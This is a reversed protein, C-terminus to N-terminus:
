EEGEKAGALVGGGLVHGLVPDEGDDDAEREECEAEANVEECGAFLDGGDGADQDADEGSHDGGEGDAKDDIEDDLTPDGLDLGEFDEGGGDFGDLDQDSDGEAVEADGGDELGLVVEAEDDGVDLEALLEAAGAGHEEVAGGEDVAAEDIEGVGVDQLGGDDDGAEHDGFELLEGVAFVGAFAGAAAAAEVDDGFELAGGAEVDGDVFGGCGAFADIGHEDVHAAGHVGHDHRGVGAEGADGGDVVDGDDVEVVDRDGEARGGRRAFGEAEFEDFGALIGILGDAEEGVSGHDDGLVSTWEDPAFGVEGDGTHQM